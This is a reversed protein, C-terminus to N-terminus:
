LPQLHGGPSPLARLSFISRHVGNAALTVGLFYRCPYGVPPYEGQVRAWCPTPCSMPRSQTTQVPTTGTERRRDREVADRVPNDDGRAQMAVPERGVAARPLAGRRDGQAAM